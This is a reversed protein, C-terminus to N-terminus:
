FLTFRLVMPEWLLVQTLDLGALGCFEQGLLVFPVNHPRYVNHSHDRRKGVILALVLGSVGSTIHVVDGGAFNITGWQALLGEYWVMHAFPFYVVFLWITM